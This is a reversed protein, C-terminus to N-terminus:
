VGAFKIPQEHPVSGNSFGCVSPMSPAVLPEVGDDSVGFMEMAEDMDRVPPDILLKPKCPSQAVIVDFLPAYPNDTSKLKIGLHNIVSVADGLIEKAVDSDVESLFELVLPLFDPLENAGIVLNHKEYEVVLDVMAGGRDRGEGHVHEFLYLAQFRNLDFANVYNMQLELLDNEELYILVAELEAEYGKFFALESVAQRIQPLSAKLEETPYHLLISVLKFLMHM